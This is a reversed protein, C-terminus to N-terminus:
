NEFYVVGLLAFPCPQCVQTVAYKQGIINDKGVSKSVRSAAVDLFRAAATISSYCEKTEFELDHVEISVKHCAKLKAQVGTQSPDVLV